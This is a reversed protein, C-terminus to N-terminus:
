VKEFWEVGTSCAVCGNSYQQGDSGIVPEYQQTCFDPRERCFTRGIPEDEVPEFTDPPTETCSIIFIVLVFFILYKM